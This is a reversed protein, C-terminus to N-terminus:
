GTPDVLERVSVGIEVGDGRRHGAPDLLYASALQRLATASTSWRFRRSHEVGNTAIRIRRSDDRLLTILADAMAGPETECIVATEDDIAYDASGGNATTVLACGCGMAELACLGFGEVISPQLYLASGNYVTSALTSQSPRELFRLHDPLRGPPRDSGFMMSPVDLDRAVQELAAIGASMFKLPHPNHNMAVQRVRETIPTMVRFTEHDIGNPVHVAEAPPLGARQLNEAMWGAVAVKPGAGRLSLLETAPAFVGLAQLFLIPLGAPSSPSQLREILRRGAAGSDPAAALDIAMVTYVLVDAGPLHDPELDTLFHHEVNDHSRFWSLEAASRLHREGAPLHAIQVTDTGIAALANALEYVAFLGGAPRSLGPVVFTWRISDAPEDIM